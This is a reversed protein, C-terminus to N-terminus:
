EAAAPEAATIPTVQAFGHSRIYNIHIGRCSADHVCTKCRLSKGFYRNMVFHEVFGFIDIRGSKEMVTADIAEPSPRALPGAICRPIDEVPVAAPNEAFFAKLDVDEEVSESLLEHTRYGLVVGPRPVRLNAAIWPATSTNVVIKVEPAPTESAFALARANALALAREIDGERSVVLRRVPRGEPLTAGSWDDLELVLAEGALGDTSPLAAADKATLWLDRYVPLKAPLGKGSRAGHRADVRLADYRFGGDVRERTQWFTDCYRRMFCHPCRAGYCELKKGTDLYKTYEDFRGRVEDFMKHPDQILEEHGELNEIPFRNTWIHVGPLKKLEMAEQIHQHAEALDYFLGDRYDDEFARGFPIIQLLDFERVGLKMFTLMMEKLHRVNRKNIVIDINVIARGDAKVNKLGQIEEEFAGPVGVLADHLKPTHGHLSFTVEGLGADLAAKAFAPYAFMRGNTVTQVRRYGLKAGLKIFDVFKPHITAEGGSLILRTAGTKRGEIIQAKVVMEPVYEGDHADSDLCFTCRNNCLKTLRVWNRKEVASSERELVKGTEHFATAVELETAREEAPGIM